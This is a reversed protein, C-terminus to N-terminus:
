WLDSVPREPEEACVECLDRNNKQVFRVCAQRTRRWLDKVPREPEEGYIQCLGRQNKKVFRV